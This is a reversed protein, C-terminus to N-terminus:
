STWASCPDSFQTMGHRHHLYHVLFNLTPWTLTCTTKVYLSGYNFTDERQLWLALLQLLCKGKALDPGATWECIRQCLHQWPFWVRCKNPARVPTPLCLKLPYPEWPDAKVWGASDPGTEALHNIKDEPNITRLLSAIHIESQRRQLSCMCFLFYGNAEWSACLLTSM